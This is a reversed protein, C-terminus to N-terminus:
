RADQPVQEGSPRARLVFRHLTADAHEGADPRGPEFLVEVLQPADGRQGEASVGIGAAAPLTLVARNSRSAIAGGVQSLQAHPRDDQM